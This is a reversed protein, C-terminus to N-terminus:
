NDAIADEGWNEKNKQKWNLSLTDDAPEMLEIL